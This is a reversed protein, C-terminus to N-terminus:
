MSYWVILYLTPSALNVMLWRTWFMFEMSRKRGVVSCSSMGDRRKEVRKVFVSSLATWACGSVEGGKVKNGSM